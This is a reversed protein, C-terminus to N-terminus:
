AGLAEQIEDEGLVTLCIGSYNERPAMGARVTFDLSEPRCGRCYKIPRNDREDVAMVDFAEYSSFENVRPAIKEHLDPALQYVKSWRLFGDNYNTVNARPTGRGVEPFNESRVRKGATFDEVLALPLPEGGGEPPIVYLLVRASSLAETANPM